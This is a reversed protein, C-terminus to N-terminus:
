IKKFVKDFVNEKMMKAVLNWDYRERAMRAGEKVM